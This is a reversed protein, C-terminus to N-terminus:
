LKGYNVTVKLHNDAKNGFTDSADGLHLWDIHFVDMIENQQLALEFRCLSLYCSYLRNCLLVLICGNVTLQATNEWLESVNIINHKLDMYPSLDSLLALKNLVFM